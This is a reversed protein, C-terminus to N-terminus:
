IACWNIDVEREKENVQFYAAMKSAKTNACIVTINACGMLKSSSALSVM